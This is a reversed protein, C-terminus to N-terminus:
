PQEGFYSDIGNAIGEIIHAQGKESSMYEDDFANTMFGMEMLTVPITSWNTGTLDDRLSLGRNSIDTAACYSDILCQSLRKSEESLHGVYPNSTSPCLMSAGHASAAAGDAHLRIAIDCRANLKQAREMNSINVENSTRTLVVKYGRRVLEKKLKNAIEMTLQYEPKGTSVGRTGGAVKTKMITSGPGNPETGSDGQQQHGPDIGIVYKAKVKLEISVTKGDVAASIVTKGTRKATVQGKSSVSAVKTNSSTWKAGKRNVKFTKQEGVKMTSSSASFALNEAAQVPMSGAALVTVMVALVFGVTWWKGTARMLM